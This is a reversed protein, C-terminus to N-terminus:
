RPRPPVIMILGHFNAGNARYGKLDAARYARAGNALGAFARSGIVRPANGTFTVAALAADGSFADNGISSVHNGLYVDTLTTIGSFARHGIRTVSNPITLSTLATGQFAGAGILQVHNGITVSALQSANQFAHAAISIVSNPIRVSTLGTNFAFARGGIGVVAQGDIRAPITLAGGAGRYGTIIGKSFTFNSTAPVVTAVQVASGSSVGNTTVVVTLSGLLTPKTTFTVTLSTTSAATVTGAASNFVVVNHSPTTADFGTGVITITTATDPLNATNLTVTPSAAAAAVVTLGHFDSGDAGFGTLNAARYATAGTAVRAFAAAGVTPANGKFTVNALTISDYFANAGISTVGSGITATTLVRCGYFAFADISVVSDPVVVATLYKFAFANPGIGTVAVGGITAPIEVNGGAGIYSTIVGNASDFTFDTEPAATLMVRAELADFGRLSAYSAQGHGGDFQASFVERRRVGRRRRFPASTRTFVSLVSAWPRRTIAM